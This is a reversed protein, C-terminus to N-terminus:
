SRLSIVIVIVIELVVVVIVIVIVIVINQFSCLKGFVCEYFLQIRFTNEYM